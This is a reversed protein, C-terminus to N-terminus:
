KQSHLQRIIICLECAMYFLDMEDAVIRNIELEGSYLHVIPFLM